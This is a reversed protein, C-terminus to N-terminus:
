VLANDSKDLFPIQQVRLDLGLDSQRVLCAVRQAQVGFIYVDVKIVHNVRLAIIKLVKEFLM